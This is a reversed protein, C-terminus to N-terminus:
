ESEERWEGRGAARDRDRGDHGVRLQARNQAVAAVAADSTRRDALAAFRRSHLPRASTGPPRRACSAPASRSHDAGPAPDAVATALAAHADRQASRTSCDRARGGSLRRRVADARTRARDSRSHCGRTRHGSCAQRRARRVVPRAFCRAAARPRRSALPRRVGLERKPRALSVHQAFATRHRKARPARAGPRRLGRDAPAPPPCAPWPQTRRWLKAGPRAHDSGSDGITTIGRECVAASRRWAALRSTAVPPRHKRDADAPRQRYRARRCLHIRRRPRLYFVGTSCPKSRRACAVSRCFQQARLAPPALDPHQRTTPKRPFPAVRATPGRGRTRSPQPPPAMLLPADSSDSRTGRGGRKARRGGGCPPLYQPATMGCKGGELTM